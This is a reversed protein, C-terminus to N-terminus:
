RGGVGQRWGCVEGGTGSEGGIRCAEVRGCGGGQRMGGTGTRPQTGKGETETGKTQQAGTGHGRLSYIEVASPFPPGKCPLSRGLPLPSLSPLLSSCGRDTM